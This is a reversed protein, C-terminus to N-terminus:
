KYLLSICRKNYWLTLRCGWYCSTHVTLEITNSNNKSPCLLYKEETAGWGGLRSNHEFNSCFIRVAITWFFVFVRWLYKHEHSDYRTHFLCIFLSINRLGGRRRLRHGRPKGRHLCEIPTLSSTTYITSM